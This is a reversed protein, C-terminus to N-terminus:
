DGGFPIAYGLTFQFVNNKSQNESDSAGEISNLNTLGFGYRADLLLSGPGIGFGVGGGFQLGIDLRNYDDSDLTVEDATLNDADGFRIKVDEDDAKIKGGLWYGFSPGANVYAKIADGGFNIKLLLPVDIYNFSSRVDVGQNEYAYGKQVYLIEPQIAFFNDSTIPINFGVGAVLGLNSKQGEEDEDFNVNALSIGAKPIISFQAQVATGLTLMVALLLFSKKM